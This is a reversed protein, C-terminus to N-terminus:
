GVIIKALFSSVKYEGHFNPMIHLVYLNYYRIAPCLKHMVSLPHMKHTSVYLLILANVKVSSGHTVKFLLLLAM